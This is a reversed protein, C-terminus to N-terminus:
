LLAHKEGWRILHPAVDKPADDIAKRLLLLADSRNDACLSAAAAWWTESKRALEDRAASLSSYRSLWSEGVEVYLGRLSSVAAQVSTPDDTRFEFWTDRGNPRLMAARQRLHCDAESPADTLRGLGLVEALAPFYVGLNLACRGENRTSFMSGQVNVVQTAAYETRRRWTRGQKRFGQSKLLEGLADSALSDLAQTM